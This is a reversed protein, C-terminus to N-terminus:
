SLDFLNGFLTQATLRKRGHRVYYKAVYEEWSVEQRERYKLFALGLSRSQPCGPVCSAVFRANWYEQLKEKTVPRLGQKHQFRTKRILPFARFDEGKGGNMMQAALALRNLWSDEVDPDGADEDEFDDWRWKALAGAGILLKPFVIGKTRYLALAPNAIFHAAMERQLRTMRVRGEPAYKLPLGYGGLHVPIYWNPHYHSGFFDGKWRNFAAPIASLAWPCNDVMEGLDRSIQTPLALSEGKKLSHTKILQLNLYGIRDMVGFRNRFFVQSNIMGADPSLYQKGQSIKFGADAATRVFVPYFEPSCKFLMDDGNVIVNKRMSKALRVRRRKEKEPLPDGGSDFVEWEWRQIACLYVSYNVACLIPFSLPHGMLQGDIALVRSGDPYSAYGAGLSRLALTHMPLDELSKIVAFTASRKLLDTAAEYDVSCWHSADVNQDIMRVKWTLDADEMTSAHFKKWDSLLLGQVPQLASYLYGDGKTIIRFKGPEPIALVEVELCSPEEESEVLTREAEEVCYEFNHSRWSEIDHHLLQLPGPFYGPGRSKYPVLPGFMSLAGGDRRSAQLCASKSPLFKTMKNHADWRNSDKFVVQATRRIVWELDSPLDGHSISLREMHKQLSAAEKLPGLKPWM